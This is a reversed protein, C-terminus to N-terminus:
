DYQDIIANILRIISRDLREEGWGLNWEENSGTDSIVYIGTAKCGRFKAVSFLGAGEMEVCQIGKEAYYKTRWDPQVYGADTTWHVGRHYKLNQSDMERCLSDTLTQSSGIFEDSFGYLGAVATDHYAGDTIVYDGVNADEHGGAFGVHILEKAGAAILDEGQTAIGPSCMEGKVFGVQKSHNMVYVEGGVHYTLTGANQSLMTDYLSDALLYVRKPFIRRLEDLDMGQLEMERKVLQFPADYKNPDIEFNRKCMVEYALIKGNKLSQTRCEKTRYGRNYFFSNAPLSADLWVAGHDKVAESELYDMLLKGLGMEQFEPRIYVRTIRKGDLTGTGVITEKEKIVYVKEQEIDTKIKGFNHHKLFFDIAEEVYYKPYVTKITERVLGYIEYTFESTAKRIEVKQM